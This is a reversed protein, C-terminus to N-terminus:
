TYASAGTKRRSVPAKANSFRAAARREARQTDLPDWDIGTIPMHPGAKPTNALPPRGAWYHKQDRRRAEGIAPRARQHRSVRHDTTKGSAARAGGAAM